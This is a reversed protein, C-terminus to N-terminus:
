EKGLSARGRSKELEIFGAENVWKSLGFIYATGQNRKKEGGLYLRNVHRHHSSKWFM